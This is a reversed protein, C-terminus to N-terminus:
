TNVLVRLTFICVNYSVHTNMGAQSRIVNRILINFHLIISYFIISHCIFTFDLSLPIHAM